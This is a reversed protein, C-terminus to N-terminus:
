KIWFKSYFILNWMESWFKFVFRDFEFLYFFQDGAVKFHDYRKQFVTKM